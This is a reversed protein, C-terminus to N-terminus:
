SGRYETVSHSPTAGDGYHVQQGTGASTIQDWAGNYHPLGAPLHPVPRYPFTRVQLATAGTASYDPPGIAYADLGYALAFAEAVSWVQDVTATDHTSWDIVNAAWLHVGLTNRYAVTKEARTKIDSILAWGGNATYAVSNYVFSELLYADDPGLATPTGTPNYTTDIANGLIADPDFDNACVAMGKTHAYQVIDNLRARSVGYAYGAVDYFMGRCGMAAWADVRARMQAPSFNSYTVSVDLYGFFDVWPARAILVGTSAHYANATQELGTGLVVLDYTGFLGVAYEIDYLGNVAEPPAYFLCLRRASSTALLLRSATTRATVGGKMVPVIETGTLHGAAPLQDFRAVAM